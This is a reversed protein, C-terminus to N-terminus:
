TIPEIALDLCSKRKAVIALAAKPDVLRRDLPYQTREEASLAALAYLQISVGM